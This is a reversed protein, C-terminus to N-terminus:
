AVSIVQEGGAALFAAHTEGSRREAEKMLEVFRPVSRLNEFWPDRSIASACLFGRDIVASLASIAPETQNMRALHRASYYLTEPDRRIVTDAAAIAKASEEWNGELYARLSRMIGQVAGTAGGSRERERLKSLAVADEGMAVLAACDLYYAVKKGYAELTNVYDGLLFYTHAASTTLHPDLHRSRLHASISADLEDCYRCAQVLGAFLEPDNRRSRARELLRLMVQQSRGQDCEVPTSFNHAIPLDPQLVFARQFADKSRAVEGGTEDGFKGLFHYVRGLRAWAPAYNPSEELCQLYLDRALSMSDLTRTLAIQNARLYFEYARASAPVDRQLSRREREDLPLQLSKLIRECLEDQIMFLDQM